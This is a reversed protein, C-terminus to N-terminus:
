GYSQRENNKQIVNLGTYAATLAVLSGLGGLAVTASNDRGLFFGILGALIVPFHTAMGVKYAQWKRSNKKWDEM